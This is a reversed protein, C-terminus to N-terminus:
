RLLYYVEVEQDAESGKWHWYIEWRAGARRLGNSQCWGTVAEHAAGLKGYDGRHITTAVRGAPLTSPQVRGIAVFPEAVEVGVEVNPLDDKYLMVNRGPAIAQNSRVAEWVEDLPRVWLAPFADWTTAAPIVATTRQIVERETM